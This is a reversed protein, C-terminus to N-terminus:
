LWDVDWNSSSIIKVASAGKGKPVRQLDLWFTVNAAQHRQNQIAELETETADKVKLSKKMIKGQVKVRWVWYADKTFRGDIKGDVTGSFEMFPARTPYFEIIEKNSFITSLIEAEQVASSFSKWGSTTFFLLASETMSLEYSDFSLSLTNYMAETVFDMVESDSFLRDSLPVQPVIRTIGKDNYTPIKYYGSKNTTLTNLAFELLYIIVVLVVFGSLLGRHNKIVSSRFM